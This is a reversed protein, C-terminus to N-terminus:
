ITDVTLKPLKSVDVGKALSGARRLIAVIAREIWLRDNESLPESVADAKRADRGGKGSCQQKLRRYVKNSINLQTTPEQKDFDRDLVTVVFYGVSPLSMEKRLYAEYQFSIDEVTDSLSFDTPPLPFTSKAIHVSAPLAKMSLSATLAVVETGTESQGMTEVDSSVFEFRFADKGEELLAKIRWAELFPAITEKAEKESSFHAKMLVTARGNEIIVSFDEEEHSLAAANGYDLDPCHEIKYHLAIVSPIQEM